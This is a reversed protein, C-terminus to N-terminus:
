RVVEGLKMRLCQRARYLRTEVAKRTCHLVAAIDEHSRDEYVFLLLATKLDEPLTAVATRVAEARERLTAAESPTKGPDATLEVTADLPVQPHRVRWRVQNRYLNTAVTFLWVSFKGEPRYRQRQEYVRVFTEQALDVAEHEHQLLRYLYHTLPTKWREMIENLALDEGDRLRQMAARDAEETDRAM